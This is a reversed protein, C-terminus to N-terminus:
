RLGGPQEALAHDDNGQQHGPQVANVAILLRQQEAQEEAHSAGGEGHRQRQGRLPIRRFMLALGHADGARAVGAGHQRRQEGRHQRRDEAPVIHEAQGQDRQYEGEDDEGAHRLVRGVARCGFRQGVVHLRQAVAVAPPEHEEVAHGKAAEEAQGAGQGAIEM